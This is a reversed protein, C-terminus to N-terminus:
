FNTLLGQLLIEHHFLLVCLLQALLYQMVRKVNLRNFGTLGLKGTQNIQYLLVDVEQDLLQPLVAIGVKM